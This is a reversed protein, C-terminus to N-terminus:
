LEHNALFSKIGPLLKRLLLIIGARSYVENSFYFCTSEDQIFCSFGIYNLIPKLIRENTKKYLPKNFQDDDNHWVFISLCYDDEKSEKHFVDVEINRDEQKCFIKFLLYNTYLVNDQKWCGVEWGESDSIMDKRVSSEEYDLYLSYTRLNISNSANGDKTKLLIELDKGQLWRCSDEKMYDWVGPHHVFHLYFKKDISNDELASEYSLSVNNVVTNMCDIIASRLATHAKKVSPLCKDMIFHRFSDYYEDDRLFKRWDSMDKCFTWVTNNYNRYFGFYHPPFCMLCRRFIHEQELDYCDSLGKSSGDFIDMIINSVFSFDNLNLPYDQSFLNRMVRICGSFFNSNEMKIIQPFYGQPLSSKWIEEEIQKKDFKNLVKSVNDGKLFDKIDIESISSHFDDLNSLIGPLNEQSIDTNLILNRCIRLWNKKHEDDEKQDILLISYLIPLTRNYSGKCMSLYYMRRNAPLDKVIYLKLSNDNIFDSLLCLKNLSSTAFKLFGSPLLDLRDSNLWNLPLIRGSLFVDFLHDTLVKEDAMETSESILRILEDYLYTNDKIKSVNAVLKDKNKMWYIILLNCICFLEEDDIEESHQQETNRNDWFFQTWKNDINDLWQSPWVEETNKNINLFRSIKEDIWSKLNEFVTLPRGRGNMKVYIDDDLGNDETMHMFAFTINCKDSSLWDWLCSNDLSNCKIHIYKLTLLMNRVTQNYKWSDIFWGQRCIFDDLLEDKQIESVSKGLHICLADCFDQAFERSLFRLKIDLEKNSLVAAYLYLLWLTILRQQGDIPVYCGNEEYCYIYNLDSSKNEDLLSDLFPNIISEVGGQVYDRQLLPILITKHNFSSLFDM